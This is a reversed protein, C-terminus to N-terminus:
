YVVVASYPPVTISGTFASAADDEVFRAQTLAQGSALAPHVTIPKDEEYNCIVIAQKGNTGTFVAYSSFADDCGEVRVSGGIHNQFSGDWLYARLDTRLKDMKSGYAVTKPFDSPFGKFNFPEYSIIYRNMLCQNVMSRDNFGTVATMLNANPRIMRTYARHARGWTRAYSVDYYNLQFDYSAEGAILFERDNAMGRFMEILREDAGYTSEGYRHGHSEDFCCMTPAHHHNEDYLIGDAGLDLCKQFERRCVELFAESHFCMPILRRTNVNTSQSLTQYQYGKYNYYRGYPDMVAMKKYVADFDPHSEDTWTFKAFLILKVGMARIEKIAQKFEEFTGLRPDPDHSPNGRDQGGDNWGVLQIADIGHKKCDEGITKPLDKFKIRLEDEPSNIHVQYWSHPQKAWAPMDPLKNWRRSLRTYCQAGVAWEGQYADMSLPLVDFSHGPAVFPLHGLCFRAQVEHNGETDADFLRSDISTRHGPMAEIYWTATEMRREAMAFCIGNGADDAALAFPYMPPNSDGEIALTPYDVSHTGCSNQFHPWLESSRTAFYGGHIFEFKKADQPRHLDGIYPYYVNEVFVKDNNELHMKFVAQDHELVCETTVAINHTGGFESQISAWHFRVFDAGTECVPAKTQLNGWANNNRRGEAELPLMLRWSLALNPRNFVYWDSVKSYISVLSGTDADFALKLTPTELCATKM